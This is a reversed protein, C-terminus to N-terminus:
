ESLNTGQATNHTELQESQRVLKVAKNLTLDPMLQLKQSLEEDYM